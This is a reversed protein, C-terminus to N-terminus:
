KLVTFLEKIQATNSLQQIQKYGKEIMSRRLKSDTLVKEISQTLQEKSFPNIQIGAQGVVEPLSSVNSTIVPCGNAMAEIVPIGFGEYFSPYIFVDSHQFLWKKEENTIYGLYIVEDELHNNKITKFIDDYLWGKKGCLILKHPITKNKQLTVFANLILQINKRPELTGIYLLYPYNINFKTIKLTPTTDKYSPYIVFIKQKDISFKTVLDNKTSVSDVVIKNAHKLSHKFFLNYFLVRSKPHYEPYLYWSIDYVFFIEKQKFPFLHPVASFNFIYDVEIQRSRLPLWNHWLYTKFYKFPNNIQTLHKDNYTTSIYDIFTYDLSNNLRLIETVLDKTYFGIGTAKERISDSIIGIKM